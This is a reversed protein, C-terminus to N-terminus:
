TIGDMEEGPKEGALTPLPLAPLQEGRQFAQLIPEPDQVVRRRDGDHERTGPQIRMPLGQKKTSLLIDFMCKGSRPLRIVCHGAHLPEPM